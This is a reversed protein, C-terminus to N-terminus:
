RRYDDFFAFKFRVYGVVLNDFTDNHLGSLGVVPDRSKNGRSSAFRRDVKSWSGRCCICHVYKIHFWLNVGNINVTINKGTGAKDGYKNNSIVEDSVFDDFNNPSKDLIDMSSDVDEFDQVLVATTKKSLSGFSPIGRPYMSNSSELKRSSSTMRTM